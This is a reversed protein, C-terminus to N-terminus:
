FPSIKGNSPLDILDM